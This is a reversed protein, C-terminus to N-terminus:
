ELHSALHLRCALNLLLLFSGVQSRQATRGLAFRILASKTAAKHANGMPVMLESHRLALRSFRTPSSGPAARLAAVPLSSTFRLTVPAFRGHQPGFMNTNFALERFSRQRVKGSM